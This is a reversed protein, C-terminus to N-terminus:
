PQVAAVGPVLKLIMGSDTAMWIQDGAGALMATKAVARYDVDMAKWGGADSRLVQIRGPVMERLRNGNVPGALYGTGDRALWIDSVAFNKDRYLTESAGTPWVIRFVESPYEFVESYRVLGMGSGARNFRVRTIAGFTSSATPTWTKGGDGTQMAISLHPRERHKLTAEPDMWEPQRPLFPDPPINWGTILGLQPTAFVIWSYTTYRLDGPQKAAEPVAAWHEGGDHTAMALRHDGVAFGNKEDLFHVRLVGQPSKPLKRWDRGAETTVWIGKTTVLWGLSENLLFLSIPPERLPVVDWHAGGDATVVAVSKERNKDEITGVAVGRAASAFQLDRIEMTSGYKDYFYQTQWRQAGLPLAVAAFAWLACIPRFWSSSM